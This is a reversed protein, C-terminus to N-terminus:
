RNSNTNTTPHVSGSRAITININIAFHHHMICCCFCFIKPDKHPGDTCTFNCDGNGLIKMQWRSSRRRYLSRLFLYVSPLPASEAPLKPSFIGMWLSFFQSSFPPFFSILFQRSSILTAVLLRLNECTFRQYLSRNRRYSTFDEAM